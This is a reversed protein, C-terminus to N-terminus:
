RLTRCPQGAERDQPLFISGPKLGSANLGGLRIGEVIAERLDKGFSPAHALGAAFADGSGTVNLAKIANVEETELGEEGLFWVAESGRTVVLTTGFKENLEIAYRQVHRFLGAEDLDKESPFTSLFEELNPKIVTPRYPLSSLLDMGRIDLITVAGAKSARQVMAPIVAQSYGAAKSGSIIVIEFDPILADFLALLKEETGEAVPLAEEVLETTSGAIRDIVTTCIRVPSSSDVWRVDIRDAACMDLFWAKNPGGAHTLHVVKAGLQGLVRAVNVGKGSADTRSAIARNVQGPKVGELVLTKQITPNLCVALFRKKM